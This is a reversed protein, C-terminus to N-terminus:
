SPLRADDDVRLEGTAGITSYSNSALLPPLSPLPLPSPPSLSPLPLPSPPSSPFPCLSPLCPCLLLSSLVFLFLLSLFFSPIHLASVQIWMTYSTQDNLFLFEELVVKQSIVDDIYFAYQGNSPFVAYQTAQSFDINPQFTTKNAQSFYNSLSFSLFLSFSLSLSLLSFPLSTFSSFLKAM